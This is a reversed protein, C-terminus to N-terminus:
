RVGGAAPDSAAPPRPKPPPQPAPFKKECARIAAENKAALYCKRAGESWPQVTCAEGMKRTMDARAQEAISKQAPDTQGDIFVQALKAAVEMCPATIEIKPAVAGSGTGSGAEPPPPPPTPQPPAEVPKQVQPQAEQAPEAQKKPPPQLECAGLAIVIFLLRKM